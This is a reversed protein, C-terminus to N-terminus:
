LCCPLCSQQTSHRSIHTLCTYHCLFISVVCTMYGVNTLGYDDPYVCEPNGKDPGQVIWQLPTPDDASASNTLCQVMHLVLLCRLTTWGSCQCGPRVTCDNPGCPGGTDSLILANVALIYATQVHVASFQIDVCELHCVKHKIM